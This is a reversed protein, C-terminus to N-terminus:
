SDYTSFLFWRVIQVVSHTRKTCYMYEFIFVDTWNHTSNFILRFDWTNIKCNPQFILQHPIHSFGVFLSEDLGNKLTKFLNGTHKRTHSHSHTLFHTPQHIGLLFLTRTRDNTQINISALETWMLIYRSSAIRYSKSLCYVKQEHQISNQNAVAKSLRDLFQTRESCLKLSSFCVNMQAAHKVQLNSWKCKIIVRRQKRCLLLLLLSLMCFTIGLGGPLQLSPSNFLM